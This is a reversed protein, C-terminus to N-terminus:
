ATHVALGEEVLGPGTVVIPYAAADLVERAAMRPSRSATPGRLERLQAGSIAFVLRGLGAIVFAGSCMACNETSTYLTTVRAQEPSLSRAAWVALKLEPHASVDDDTLTTNTAEALVEGGSVLLSGFPPNGSRKAEGALEVARRLFALDADDLESM